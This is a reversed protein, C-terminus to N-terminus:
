RGDDPEPSPNERLCANVRENLKFVCRNALCGCQGSRAYCQTRVDLEYCADDPVRMGCVAGDCSRACDDDTRCRAEVQIDQPRFCEEVRIPESSRCQAECRNAFLRGDRTCVPAWAIPCADCEGNCRLAQILDDPAMDDRILVEDVDEDVRGDCDNDEGDCREDRESVEGFCASWEGRVCMQIGSQCAGVDRGCTQSLLNQRVLRECAEDDDCAIEDRPPESEDIRGDCDDDRNNCIEVMRRADEDIRGDCDNDQEDCLDAVEAFGEDIQGDCDNDREDCVEDDPGISAMCPGLRGRVCSQTGPRCEGVDRGCSVPPVAEDVEGDCDNDLGDCQEVVDGFGEDIRGDCDNDEGDCREMLDGFNEDIRGDCDNDVGDCREMLDDFGEDEEGDCDNDVGDCTEIAESFGEDTKGDCDNDAGDCIEDTEVISDMCPGLGGAMCVRSGSRCEGVDLGCSVPPIQEDVQGDCDNDVGDCRETLDDFGEDEQGDCDNDKGDCLERETVPVLENFPRGECSAECVSDFKEGRHCVPQRRALDCACPRCVRQGDISPRCRLRGSCDADVECSPLCVNPGLPGREESAAAEESRSVTLPACVGDGCEDGAGPTCTPVCRGTQESVPLCILPQGDITPCLGDEPRCQPLPRCERLCDSSSFDRRCREVNDMRRPGGAPACLEGLACDQQTTCPAVLCPGGYAPQASVCELLCRSRYTVGDQGCIAEDVSPEPCQSCGSRECQGQTCVEDGSCDGDTRCATPCARPGIEEARDCRAYCENPFAKRQGNVLGCVPRSIPPCTSRCLQQADLCRFTVEICAGDICAETDGCTSTDCTSEICQGDRCENEFECFGDGCAYVCETSGSCGSISCAAGRCECLFCTGEDVPVFGDACYLNCAGTGQCQAPTCDECTLALTLQSASTANTRFLVFYLGTEPVTWNKLKSSRGRASATLHDGWLGNSARPGYLVMDAASGESTLVLDIQQGRDGAFTYGSRDSLTVKASKKEGFTIEGLVTFQTVDVGSEAVLVGQGSPPQAFKTEDLRNETCGVAALFLLIGKILRGM